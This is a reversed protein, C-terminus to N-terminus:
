VSIALLLSLFTMIIDIGFSASGNKGEEKPDDEKTDDEKLKLEESIFEDNNCGSSSCCAVESLYKGESDANPNDFQLYNNNAISYLKNYMEGKSGQEIEDCKWGPICARLKSVV